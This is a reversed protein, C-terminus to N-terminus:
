KSASENKLCEIFTGYDRIYDESDYLEDALVMLVCDESFDYMDHWIMKEILLAQASNDLQLDIKENGDDLLFRCRGRVAIAVQRLKKHAHNGRIVGKKTGFMYYVRKPHFPINVFEELAILSGREDGHIQLTFMSINM